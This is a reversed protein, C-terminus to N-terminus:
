KGKLNKSPSLLVKGFELIYTISGLPKIPYVFLPLATFQTSIPMLLVGGVAQVLIISGM